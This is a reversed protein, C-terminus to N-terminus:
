RSSVELHFRGKMKGRQADPAQNVLKLKNERNQGKPSVRLNSEREGFQFSLSLSIFPLAALDCDSLHQHGHHGVSVKWPDLTQEKAEVLDRTEQTLILEGSEFRMTSGGRM